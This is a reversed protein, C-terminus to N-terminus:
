TSMWTLVVPIHMQQVLESCTAESMPVFEHPKPMDDPFISRSITDALFNNEGKVHVIELDFQSIVQSFNYIIAQSNKSGRMFTIARSDTYCTIKPAGLLFWSNLSVMMLISAVEKRIVSWNIEAKQLIRSTATLYRVENTEPDRQYALGSCCFHAVDTTIEVPVNPLVPSLSILRM